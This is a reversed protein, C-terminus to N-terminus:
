RGSAGACIRRAVRASALAEIRIKMALTSMVLRAASRKRASM